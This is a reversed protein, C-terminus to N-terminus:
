NQTKQEQFLQSLRDGWDDLSSGHQNTRKPGTDRQDLRSDRPGEVDSVSLDSTTRWETRREATTGKMGKLWVKYATTTCFDLLYFFSVSRVVMLSPYFSLGLIFSHNFIKLIGLLGQFFFLFYAFYKHFILFNLYLFCYMKLVILYFCSLRLVSFM